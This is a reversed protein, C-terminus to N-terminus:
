EKGVISGVDEEGEVIGTNVCNIINVYTTFMNALIGGVFNRGKIYGYNSCNTMYSPNIISSVIQGQIGGVYDQGIVDGLNISNIIHGFQSIAVIGAIGTGSGVGSGSNSATIKGTNICNIVQGSNDAAIGGIRDVGSVSGNNICHSITGHNASAIGGVQYYFIDGYLNTYTCPFCEITANNICHRRISTLPVSHPPSYVYVSATIGAWGNVYGNVTLNDLIGKINSFLCKELNIIIKKENGYFYSCKFDTYSISQNVVDIDQMLQFCKDCHWCDQSSRYNDTNISDILEIFHESNWIQFPASVSGVGGGFQSFLQINMSVTSFLLILAFKMKISNAINHCM